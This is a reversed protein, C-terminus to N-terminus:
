TVPQSGSAAILTKAKDLDFPRPPRSERVRHMPPSAGYDSGYGFAAKLIM